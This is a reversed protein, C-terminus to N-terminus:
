TRLRCYRVFFQNCCDCNLLILSLVNCAIIVQRLRAMHRANEEKRKKAGQNAMTRKRKKGLRGCAVASRIINRRKRKSSCFVIVGSSRYHAKQGMVSFQARYNFLVAM